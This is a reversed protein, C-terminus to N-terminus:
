PGTLQNLTSVCDGVTAFEGAPVFDTKCFYENAAAAGALDHSRFSSVCPGTINGPYYQAIARCFQLAGNGGAAASAPAATGIVGIASGALAVAFM